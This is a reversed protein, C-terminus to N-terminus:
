SHTRTPSPSPSPLIWHHKECTFPAISSSTASPLDKDATDFQCLKLEVGSYEELTKQESLMRQIQWLIDIARTVMETNETTNLKFKM